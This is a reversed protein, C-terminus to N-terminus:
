PSTTAYSAHLETKTSMVFKSRFKGATSPPASIGETEEELLPKRLVSADAMVIADLFENQEISRQELERDVDQIFGRVWDEMDGRGRFRVVVVGKGTSNDGFNGLGKKDAVSRVFKVFEQLTTQGLQIDFKLAKAGGNTVISQLSDFQTQDAFVFTYGDFMSLRKPDPAFLEAPRPIPEKAPGPLYEMANPWSGDIDQELQSPLPTTGDDAPGPSSAAMELADLFGETVIHKGNILAQLCKATNRKSSVVYTTDGIIYSQIIKIDFQEFRTRHPALPDANNRLQKDAVQITIVM